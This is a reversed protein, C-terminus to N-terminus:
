ARLYSLLRKASAASLDSAIIGAGTYDQHAVRDKVVAMSAMGALLASKVGHGSGTVAIANARAVDNAMCARRWSDWRPCGYFLSVERYLSVNEVLLSAFASAAAEPAARTSIVVKVGKSAITAVFNRFAASVASLVTQSVADCFLAALERAAKPATKKTKIVRFYRVLGEEYSRGALYKEETPMDLGIGDVAKLHRQTVDFLLKAGDMAAFDFEVIVGKAAGSM